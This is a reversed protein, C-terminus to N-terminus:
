SNWTIMFLYPVSMRMRKIKGIKPLEGTMAMRLGMTLKRM